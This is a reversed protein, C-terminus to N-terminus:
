KNKNRYIEIIREEILIHVWQSPIEKSSSILFLIIPDKRCDDSILFQNFEHINFYPQEKIEKPINYQDIPDILLGRELASEESMWYRSGNTKAWGYGCVRNSLADATFSSGESTCFVCSEGRGCMCNM